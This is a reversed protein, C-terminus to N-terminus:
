VFRCSICGMQGYDAHFTDGRRAAVPRTFSGGLIVQGAELEVDYPFLKNALWAV